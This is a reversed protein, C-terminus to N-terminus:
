TRGCCEGSTEMVARQQWGDGPHIIHHRRQRSGPAAVAAAIIQRHVPCVFM